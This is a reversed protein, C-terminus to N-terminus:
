GGVTVANTDGLLLPDKATVGEVAAVAVQIAGAYLKLIHAGLPPETTNGTTPEDTVNRVFV